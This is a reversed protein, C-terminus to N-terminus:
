AIKRGPMGDSAPSSEEEEGPAMDMPMMEIMRADARVQVAGTDELHWGTYAPLVFRGTADVTVPIYFGPAFDAGAGAEPEPEPEAYTTRVAYTATTATRISTADDIDKAALSPAPVGVVTVTDADPSIDVDAETSPPLVMMEIDPEVRENTYFDVLTRISSATPSSIGVNPRHKFATRKFVKPKPLGFVRIRADLLFRSLATLGRAYNARAETALGLFLFVLLACAPYIWRGLEVTVRNNTDASWLARPIEAIVRAHVFAPQTTPATTAIFSMTASTAITLLGLPVSLFVTTFALGNVRLYRGPTLNKHHSLIAELNTRSFALAHASLVCYVVSGFGFVIPWMFTILYTSLSNHYDPVCGVDELINFRHRQAVAQLAIHMTPFLGCLFSDILITRRKEAKDVDFAPTQTVLYLRRTICLAAAPLGINAAMLLRISIECWAPASNTSNGDWVVSNFYQVLCPLSTWGIYSIVGVNWAEFQWYLPVLSLLFGLSAFVTFIAADM